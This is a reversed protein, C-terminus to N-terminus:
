CSSVLVLHDLKDQNTRFEGTDHCLPRVLQTGGSDVDYKKWQFGTQLNEAVVVLLGLKRLHM